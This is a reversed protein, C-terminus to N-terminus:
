RPGELVGGDALLFAVDPYGAFVATQFVSKVVVAREAADIALLLRGPPAGSPSAMEEHRRRQLAGYLPEIRQIRDIGETRALSVGDLEVAGDHIRVMPPEPPPTSAERAQPPLDEQPRARFPSFGPFVLLLTVTVLGVPLSVALILRSSRTRRRRARRVAQLEPSGM